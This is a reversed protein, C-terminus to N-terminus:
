EDGRPMTHVREEGPQDALKAARTNRLEARWSPCQRYSRAVGHAALDEALVATRQQEDTALPGLDIVDQAYEDLDGLCYGHLAGPSTRERVIAVPGTRGTTAVGRETSDAKCLVATDGDTAGAIVYAAPCLDRCRVVRLM